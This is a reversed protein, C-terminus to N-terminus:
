NHQWIRAVIWILSIFTMLLKLGLFMTLRFNTMEDYGGIAQAYENTKRILYVEYAIMAVIIFGFLTVVGIGIVNTYIKSFYLIVNILVMVFAVMLGINIWKGWTILNRKTKYGYLAMIMFISGAVAFVGILDIAKWTVFLIGFGLGQALVYSSFTIYIFPKSAKFIRFSWILILILSAIIIIGALLSVRALRSIAGSFQINRYLGFNFRTTSNLEERLIGSSDIFFNTLIGIVFISLFGVGAILFTKKLFDKETFVQSKVYSSNEM